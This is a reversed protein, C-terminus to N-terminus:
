ESPIEGTFGALFRSLDDESLNAGAFDTDGPATEGLDTAPAVPSEVARGVAALEALTPQEFLQRATLELGAAQARAVVQIALVSDGGLAFFNDHRGIGGGADKGRGLGLVEAWTAALLEEAPSAPPEYGGRSSSALEPAPLAGRDLKGNATLPLAPLFLLDAPVMYEPLLTRLHARLAAELEASGTRGDEGAPVVYAALRKNGRPEGRATVVAERVAPHRTLAAEIEGLEVRHGAVKVQFDERGLFEITGDPLFRGLDGTRYLRGGAPLDIFSARTKGPDGWYGRALGVGGIYLQGPV